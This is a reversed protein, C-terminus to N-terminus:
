AVKIYADLSMARGGVSLTLSYPFSAFQGKAEVRGSWVQGGSGAQQTPACVSSDVMQGSFGTITVQGDPSVPVVTWSIVQGDQCVTHLQPTGENWSGLYGNNDVLYSNDMASGSSLAGLTDVVVLICLNNL